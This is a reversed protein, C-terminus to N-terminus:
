IEQSSGFVDSLLKFSELARRFRQERSKIVSLHKTCPAVKPLLNMQHQNTCPGDHDGLLLLEEASKILEDLLMQGTTM